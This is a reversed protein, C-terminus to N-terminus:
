RSSRGIRRRLSVILRNPLLSLLVGALSVACLAQVTASDGAYDSSAWPHLALLVGAGLFTAGVAVPLLELRQRRILSAAALGVVLMAVAAWGAALALLVVLLGVIPVTVPRSTMPHGNRDARRAPRAALAVLLLVALVGALLAWRYSRDPAYTIRVDADLGAPLLFGQQWGDVTIPTLSRGHLTAQWGANANDHMWVITSATRPGVRLMRETPQWSRVSVPTTVARGLDTGAPTMSISTPLMLSGPAALLRADGTALVVANSGSCVPLRVQSRQLLQARTVQGGTQLVSDGVRVSPGAGCPLTLRRTLPAPASRLRAAGILSVESMGVPLLSGARSYPDVSGALHVSTVRITLSTTRLGAFSVTGDDAVEAARTGAPSEVRITRARSAALTGDVRLRLGTVTEPRDWQLRLWPAQDGAAAVWGTTATGDVAAGPRGAPDAVQSSSTSARVPRGADLLANLAAGPQARADVDVAYTAAPLAVTRDLVGNEETGRAVDPSCLFQGIVPYCSDPADRGVDFAVAPSEGVAQDAGAGAVLTRSVKLGPISVEALGFSGGGGARIEVQRTSGSPVAVNVWDDAAPLVVRVEGHDTVVRLSTVRPGPAKHDVRVRLGTVSRPNVLQIKWRAAGSNDAPDAWWSTRVDGDTAAYPLREPRAGGLADADAASSSATVALAGALRETTQFRRWGPLIYDRGTAGALTPSTNTAPRGFFVDQRRLGDTRVVPGLLDSGPPQNASLVTPRGTLWGRDALGLLSEPGGSVRLATSAPAASARGAQGAVAYLELAPYPLDLGTDVYSGLTNAGGVRGGFTRVLTLGPSQTLAAHVLLPRTSGARGYDLDNRVLLYRVGARALFEALGISGRGSALQDEVADLARITGPPTLPIANRVVWRSRALAQLPEDGTSGWYYDAFSSGPVLLTSGGGDNAALWQAADRWYGPIEAYPARAPLAFVVAPTAVGVLAAAVAMLGTARRLDPRMGLSRRTGLLLHLGHAGALVLPLRILVDFKHVNRIPALVGDLLDRQTAAFPSTFPGGHGFTVLAVGCLLTSVLWLRHPTRHYALAALGFGAVLVTDLVVAPRSVLLWGGPWVPGFPTSLYAVWDSTGRMTEVLSTRSTTITADEIYDLFPPSFRGLLLLPLSWWLTALVVAASWWALLRRRRPSPRRTLLYLAAPPLAALTAAANIGGMCLVVLGSLMAARRVSGNASAAVLPVVVWPALCMPLVEVSISGLSTLIRPSLAFALGAVIRTTPSGMGLRRALEVVGTFAVCLLAALWLRQIVWGPLHLVKGFAFFPGVPFLYGYAQNQVQGFFGDPEWLRLARALFGAPDVTLDLKTDAVLRGPAQKFMLATLGICWAFLRMRHAVRRARDTPEAPVARATVGAEATRM